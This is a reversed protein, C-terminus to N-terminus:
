ISSFRERCFAEFQKRSTCRPANRVQVGKTGVEMVPYGPIECVVRATFGDESTMECLWANIMGLSEFRFKTTTTTSMHAM